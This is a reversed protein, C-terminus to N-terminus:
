GIVARAIAAFDSTADIVALGTVLLAAALAVLHWRVPGRAASTLAGVRDAVALRHLGAAISPTRTGSGARALAAIAITRAVLSRGGQSAACEDADRECLFEVADRVPVLLPVAAAAYTALGRALGHRRGLHASEHAVVIQQEDPALVALLGTTLYVTGYRRWVSGAVAFADVTDNDIVVSGGDGGDAVPLAARQQYRARACRLVRLLGAGLAAAAAASVLDPVPIQPQLLRYGPLDDVLMAALMVLSWVVGAAAASSSTAFLWLTAGPRARRAIPAAVLALLVCCVLPAYVAVTV